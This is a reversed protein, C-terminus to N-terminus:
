EFTSSEDTRNVMKSVNTSLLLSKKKTFNMLLVSFYLFVTCLCFYSLLFFYKVLVYSICIKLVLRVFHDCAKSPKVSLLFSTLSYQASNM